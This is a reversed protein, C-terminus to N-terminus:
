ILMTVPKLDKECVQYIGVVEGAHDLIVVNEGVKQTIDKQEKLLSFSLRNGNRLYKEAEFVAQYKTYEKLIESLPILLYSIDGSEALAKFDSIKIAEDAKFNGSSLRILASMTAPTNLYQGIDECLSRIYTGKSCLVDFSYKREDKKEINKIQYITILRPKREVSKGQRAIEYLRKGGVRIASYMPPLQEYQKQFSKIATTVNEETPIEQSEAITQGTIDGTDTQIGLLMEVRYEKKESQIYDALKTAKGICIPLVGEAMPDLTGTHGTKVRNLAKRVINVCDHSTYDKEKYLNIVGSLM